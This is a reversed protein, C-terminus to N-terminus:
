PLSEWSSRWGKIENRHPPGRGVSGRWAVGSCSLLLLMSFLLCRTPFFFFFVLLPIFSSPESLDCEHPKIRKFLFARDIAELHLFSRELVVLIPLGYEEFVAAARLFCFSYVLTRSAPKFPSFSCFTSGAGTSANAQQALILSSLKIENERGWGAAHVGPLLMGSSLRCAAGLQSPTCTCTPPPFRENTGAHSPLFSPLFSPYTVPYTKQTSVVATWPFFRVAVVAVFVGSSWVWRSFIRGLCRFPLCFQRSHNPDTSYLAHHRM